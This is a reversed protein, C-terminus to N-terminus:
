FEDLDVFLISVEHSAKLQNSLWERLSDSWSLETMPDYSRCVHAMVDAPTIVGLLRGNDMVPIWMMGSDAMSKAADSLTVDPSLLAKERIMVDAVTLSPSVGLLHRDLVMGILDSGEIVPLAGIDHGKMLLTATEVSHGPNVWVAPRTLVDRVTKM